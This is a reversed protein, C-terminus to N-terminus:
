LGRRYTWVRAPPLNMLVLAARRLEVGSPAPVPPNTGYSLQVFPGGPKLHRLATEILAQREAMPHTLLPLGSVIAAFQTDGTLAPFNFADGRV